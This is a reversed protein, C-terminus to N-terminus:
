VAIQDTGRKLHIERQPEGEFGIREIPRYMYVEDVHQLLERWFRM